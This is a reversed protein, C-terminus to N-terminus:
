IRGPIPNNNIYMKSNQPALSTSGQKKGYTYDREKWSAQMDSAIHILRVDKREQFNGGLLRKKLSKDRKRM